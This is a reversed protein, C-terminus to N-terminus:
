KLSAATEKIGESYPTARFEFSKNFKHCGFLYDSDFQYLMEVTERIIQNSMGGIRVMLKPIVSYKSPVGYVKAVAEIFEKGSLVNMDTPLHWVQNFASPTNGLLATAKGADLTYTFSHKHKDSALWQAKKGNKLNNFVMRNVFSNSTGPGYFDAARVIMGTLSGRSIEEMLMESIDIRVLGKRTTANYPTEESMWGNVPGYSYVNDFFVLKAQQKTCADIVNRMVLPWQEQWVKNSYQLGATLYVIESGKVANNVQLSDMLDAIILEDGPNVEKPDRSVLRIRATYQVLNKALETGIVGTSGLITQMTLYNLKEHDFICFYPIAGGQTRQWGPLFDGWGTDRGL